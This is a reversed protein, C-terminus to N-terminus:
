SSQYLDSGSESGTGSRSGSGYNKYVSGLVRILALIGLSRFVAQLVPLGQYPYRYWGPYKNFKFYIFFFGLSPVLYRLTLLIQAARAVAALSRAAERTWCSRRSLRCNDFMVLFRYQTLINKFFDIVCHKQNLGFQAL